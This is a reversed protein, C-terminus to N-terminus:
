MGRIVDMQQWPEPFLEDVQAFHDAPIEASVGAVIQEIQDLRTAGLVLSTIAPQALTWAVTYETMSLNAQQALAELAELRDFMADNLEEGALWQPMESARSAAPLAEDRHYKGTLLGGQISQYPTVAIDHDVCFSLDHHFMRKLMSYPIQSVVPRPLHGREAIWLMECLQAASHNSAGFYRVKGQRVLTEMANLTTELPTEKDPWHILCVDIYDMQLRRLSDDVAQMVHRASAGREQPGPGIPAGFKTTVIAEDRRGALAKGLIEEGVGGASGFFRTYGEYVNATDIYNIGLDMAGHVMRIADAEEVPTGFTMTGLCIPSVLLGTAGLRNYNM